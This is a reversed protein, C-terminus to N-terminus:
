DESEIAPELYSDIIEKEVKVLFVEQSRGRMEKIRAVELWYEAKAEALRDEDFFTSYDFDGDFHVEVEYGKAYNKAMVNKAM